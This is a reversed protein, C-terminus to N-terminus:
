LTHRLGIHETVTTNDHLTIIITIILQSQILVVTINATILVKGRRGLNLMGALFSAFHIRISTV